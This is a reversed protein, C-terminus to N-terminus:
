PTAGPHVPNMLRMVVPQLPRDAARGAASGSREALLAAETMMLRSSYAYSHVILDYVFIDAV